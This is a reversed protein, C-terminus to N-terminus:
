EEHFLRAAPIREREFDPGSWYVDFAYRMGAQFYGVEIRHLGQKLAVTGARTEARHLGDNDVVEVGDIYLRSGDNSETYFTYMGDRPAEVLGTFRLAYEEDRQRMDMSIVPAVGEAAPTLAAFDPLVDWSGEYYGYRVGPAASEIAVPPNPEFQLTEGQLTKEFTKRFDALTTQNEDMRTVGAREAVEFFRRVRESFAPDVSATFNDHDVRVGAMGSANARDLIAYEVPLRAEQVRALVDPTDRVKLEAEDWLASSQALIEDNLFPATRADVWIDAHINNEAVHDHLLDIYARIPEAAAGYVGELFENIARDEGYHPDWLLKANLYGSLASFEGGLTNYVDQEFIGKVNNAIFLQINDDRVRLNPYPCLYSRFSTVYDWIWLRESVQSWGELDRVFAGNDPFDSTALPQMFDCEISCLRIIVNPRPRMHAPPKRTYQYALTEIAKDPFREAVADAVRNVLHLVPGIQSGEREAVATCEACECWNLWDNQSLSYVFADPDAAIRELMRETCIRIVDENTCCLQTRDKLREGRVLSYYEPHEDFFEDPPMLVDFTHVFLGNGFRVKGGHKEELRAASSNMRNRAAWDGDQCDATFPERSELIPVVRKSLAPITVGDISPIHSVTPTFWRCGYHEELLDYVGYLAGRVDSGAIVLHPGVTQLVYGEDGLGEMARALAAGAGEQKLIARTHANVGVIFAAEPLPEADTLLPLTEGSMQGLFRQLEEAAYRTSPSAEAGVVIAPDALATSAGLVFLAAVLARPFLRPVIFRM